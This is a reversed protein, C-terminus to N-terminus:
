VHGELLPGRAFNIARGQELQDEFASKKFGRENIVAKDYVLPGLRPYM